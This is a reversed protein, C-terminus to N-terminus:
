KKWVGEVKSVPVFTKFANKHFLDLFEKEKILDSFYESKVTVETWNYYRELLISLARVYMNKRQEVNLEAELKVFRENLQICVECSKNEHYLPLVEFGLAGEWDDNKMYYYIPDEHRPDTVLSLSDPWQGLKM